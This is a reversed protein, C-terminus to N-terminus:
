AGCSDRAGLGSEAGGWRPCGARGDVDGGDVCKTNTYM